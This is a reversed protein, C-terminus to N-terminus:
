QQEMGLKSRKIIVLYNGQGTVELSSHFFNFFFFDAVHSFLISIHSSFYILYALLWQSPLVPFFLQLRTYSFIILLPISSPLQLTCVPLEPFM